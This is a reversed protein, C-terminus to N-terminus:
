NDIDQMCKDEAVGHKLDIELSVLYFSLKLKMFISWVNSVCHPAVYWCM